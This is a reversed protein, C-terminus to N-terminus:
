KKDHKVGHQRWTDSPRIIQQTREERKKTEWSTVCLHDPCEVVTEREDQRVVLQDTYCDRVGCPFEPRAPPAPPDLEVPTGFFAELRANIRRLFLVLRM